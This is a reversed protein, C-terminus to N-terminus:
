PSSSDNGSISAGASIGNLSASAAAAIQQAQELAARVRSDLAQSKARLNVDAGQMKLQGDAIALRVRPELAQTEASYLAVLSRAFETKLGALSTALQAATQPGLILTKIYDGAAAVSKMRLDLALQVAARVNELEARFSEISIDRSQEALKNRQDQRILGVQHVLAGPPLPFRRRAWSNTVDAEARDAETVIRARGREWLQQEVDANIGTGGENIARDMWDLAGQYYAGDPFNDALFQSFGDQILAEMEARAADYIATAANADDFPLDPADPPLYSTDLTPVLAQPAPDTLAIADDNRKASENMLTVANRWKANVIQSVIVPAGAGGTSPDPVSVIDGPNVPTTM